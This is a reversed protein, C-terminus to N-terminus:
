CPRACFSVPGPTTFARACSGKGRRVPQAPRLESREMLLLGGIVVVYTAANLFFCWVIGLASILVGGLAPGIVKASNFVTSNLGVANNLQDPAVMDVVFSHRAPVEIVKMCGHAFALAYIMWLEIIGAATLIGL